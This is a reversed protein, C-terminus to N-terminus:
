NEAIVTLFTANKEVARQGHPYIANFYVSDGAELLVRKKEFLLEIKGELVMNFEQGPHSVLAPDHDSPEVSVLLPEMIKDKFTHALSHFRYGPYRDINQGRGRRVVCFTAIHPQDGTLIESLEVGLKQSLHYLASIPIDDGETEYRTYVDLSVGLDRAMEEATYGCIERLERIRAAMQSFEM